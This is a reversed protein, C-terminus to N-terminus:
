GMARRDCRLHNRLDFAIPNDAPSLNTGKEAIDSGVALGRRRVSPQCRGDDSSEHCVFATWIWTASSSMSGAM